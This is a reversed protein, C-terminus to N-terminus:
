SGTGNGWNSCQTANTSDIPMSSISIKSNM